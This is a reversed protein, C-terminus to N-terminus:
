EEKVGYMARDILALVVARQEDDFMVLAERDFSNYQLAQGVLEYTLQKEDESFSDFIESAIRENIPEESVPEDEGVIIFLRKKGWKLEIYDPMDLTRDFEPRNRKVERTSQVIGAEKLIMPLYRTNTFLTQEKENKEWDTADYALLESPHVLPTGIVVNQYM